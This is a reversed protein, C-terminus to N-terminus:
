EGGLWGAPPHLKKSAHLIGREKAQTRVARWSVYALAITIVPLLGVM